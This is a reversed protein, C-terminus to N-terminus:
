QLILCAMGIFARHVATAVKAQRNQQDCRKNQESQDDATNQQGQSLLAISTDPNPM